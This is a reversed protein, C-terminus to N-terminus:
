KWTAFVGVCVCAMVAAALWGIRLLYRPLEFKGMVKGNSAMLMIIVMLPAAVIGNLVAAWVLAKVPNMRLFNMVLGILTAICIAAYFGPAERPKNELSGKWKCGEAIGYAASTALVPLALLGTGVIGCVFLLGAFRGAIPALASAAEACTSVNTIGHLHLTSAATLIIFFAVANSLGMGVLTDAHIREFQGRAHSPDDRLPKEGRNNRVEEAEQSAQWFFLYPSITTGLVAILAVFADQTFNIRPLVTAVLVDRWSVHVLFAVGVYALLSATLWKLYKAYTTYPIFLIALLSVIGFLVIMPAESGPVILAVSSGMAGIDAGLNFVNAVFVLLLVAFLVPRPYNKRLNAALGCGTVRGIRGCIEQIAAMLPFSVLMTWLLAYGFQAGV